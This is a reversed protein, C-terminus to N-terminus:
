PAQEWASLISRVRAAVLARAEERDMGEALLADYDTHKHRAWATVAARAPDEAVTSRGVRGSGPETAHRACARAEREPMGPYLRRIEALLREADRAHRRERARERDEPSRQKRAALRTRLEEARDEPVVIGRLIPKWRWGRRQFGVLAPAYPINAARCTIGARKADIHALGAPVGHRIDIAEYPSLAPPDSM